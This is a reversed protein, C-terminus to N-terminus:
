LTSHNMALKFIFKNSAQCPQHACTKLCINGINEYNTDCSCNGGICTGNGCDIGECLDICNWEKILTASNIKATCTENEICELPCEYECRTGDFGENCECKFESNGM